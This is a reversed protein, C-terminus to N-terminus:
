KISSYGSLRYFIQGAAIGGDNPPIRSQYYAKLNKKELKNVTNRLLYRNQFCGGSLLIKEEGSKLAIDTIIEALTNHFKTSISNLSIKNSIESLIQHIIPEWNVIFRHNSDDYEITYIYERESDIGETLFELEMAAQGEFNVKQKINLISAVADFLRGASSTVPSNIKNSLINKLLKIDKLHTPVIKKFTDTSFLKEGYIEYLLGIATRSIEKIAIEGGPLTFTRLNAFRKITKDKVLFFEGGWITGDTGYGTGDWAVGLLPPSIQNEVICSFTHAVHHQVQFSPIVRDKAYKASVYDPHMDCIVEEPNINYMQKLDEITNKFAKYSEPTDLDGIHQSLYINRNKYLAITNKLHAGVSLFQNSNEKYFSQATNIIIPFPAYGRSRRYLIENNLNITVISDDVYRLIPRNHVLFIDAIGSLKELAERNDTYIPEDSLNGSTAVIPIKLGNMIIHHLPTYPLMVGLYPNNLAVFKSILNEGERKKLLVIPAQPSLLSREELASVYCVEKIENLGPFMLAFPKEERFKRQRLLNVAKDSRADCVLHFGGLGKIAAIKGQSIAKIVEPIADQKECIKGGKIDLLEVEPGCKPCANPQAHFRRDAPNEYERRCDDCMMFNKMSTRSRDYPLSDIITYRPGCNTCNTFPYLYRRNDASFIDKLCDPCTAIDPLLIADPEGGTESKRIEFKDYGVPDLYKFELIQIFSIAPKENEIKIIFKELIERKGEADITVGRPSNLVWGKLNMSSALKYIFPRFGVGQVAGSIRIQVRLLM